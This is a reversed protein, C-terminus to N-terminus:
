AKAKKKVTFPFLHRVRRSGDVSGRDVMRFKTNGITVKRPVIFEHGQQRARKYAMAVCANWTMNSRGAIYLCQIMHRENDFPKKEKTRKIERLESGDFELGKAKRERSTPEYECESCRGGRYIRGCKPCEIQPRATVNEADRQKQDLTWCIDDEFFTQLRDISGGHDLVITNEKGPAVRSGRGIMQLLRVVSGVATCLQICSVAPIDTGREVVGVNCLYDIDGQGLLKYVLRRDDDPTSGDVYEARIGHRNLESQAQKAHDRLPFFGVTPRGQAYKKWDRVMDGGLGDFAIGLSKITYNRGSKKLKDLQGRTVNFYRFPSLYGNDILWETKPGPVIESYVSSLEDCQPTATLGIVFAKSKGEKERHADHVKLFKQLKSLHSHTEDFAILDFTYGKYEEGECWWSILTDISAVQVPYGFDTDRQSMIVGHQLSPSESLSNSANDVLGRRHVAFLVRGTQQDTPKRKLKEAIIHKAMRTKGTGPPAQMVVRRHEILAHKVRQVHDAQHPYLSVDIM